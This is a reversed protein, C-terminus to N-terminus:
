VPDLLGDSDGLLLAGFDSQTRFELHTTVRHLVVEKLEVAEEVGLFGDGVDKAGVQSVANETVNTAGNKVVIHSVVAAYHAQISLDHQDTRLHM